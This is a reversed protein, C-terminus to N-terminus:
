AGMRVPRLVFTGIGAGVVLAAGVYFATSWGLTAILAGTVTGGFV